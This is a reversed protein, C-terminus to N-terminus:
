EQSYPAVKWAEVSSCVMILPQYALPVSITNAQPPEMNWDMEATSGGVVAIHDANVNVLGALRVGNHGAGHLAQGVGHLPGHGLDVVAGEGLIPPVAVLRPTFSLATSSGVAASDQRKSVKVTSSYSARYWCISSPVRTTSLSKELSSLVSHLM